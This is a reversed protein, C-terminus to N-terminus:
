PITSSATATNNNTWDAALVADATVDGGEVSLYSYLGALDTFDKVKGATGDFIDAPDPLTGSFFGLSYELGDFFNRGAVSGDYDIGIATNITKSAVAGSPASYGSPTVLTGNLWLKIRDGSTANASDFHVLFATFSGASYAGTKSLYSEADSEDWFNCSIGGGGNAQIYFERNGVQAYYRSILTQQKLTDANISGAIAFKARNYAGWDANSMSLYQNTGNFSISQTPVAAAVVDSDATDVSTSGGANTATVKCYVAIGLEDETLEYTSEDAGSIASDDDAHYWQYAYTIPEEGTWTGQTCTLTQGVVADGSLVPAVTNVPAPISAGGGAGVLPSTLPSTLPSSFPQSYPM